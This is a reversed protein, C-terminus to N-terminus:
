GLDIGKEKLRCSIKKGGLPEKSDSLIELIALVKRETEHIDRALM